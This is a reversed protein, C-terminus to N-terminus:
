LQKNYYTQIQKGTVVTVVTVGATVGTVVMAATDETCLPILVMHARAM